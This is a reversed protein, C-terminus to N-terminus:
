KSNKGSKLLHICNMLARANHYNEQWESGKDGKRQEPSYDLGEKYWGGKDHDILYANIYEWQKRFARDYKKEEPFTKAMLLLANLGEAQVWWVKARSIIAISDRHAFYYGSEYFGGNQDDWGNELAHDVMHKATSLTKRDSEMGLVHSAELMLYATEVDHGFSVHDLNVNAKRVTDSSDRFSVPTWDRELYLTLYGKKGTITDRILLLLEQLRERLLGDPWVQYLATFAELLHISSNQDKWRAAVWDPANLGKGGKYFWAGERTMRDLYGKYLPDHSNKELWLFTQKALNLASSDGSMTFYSALSFIAFANGYASKGDEFAGGIPGGKRNRRMYFGGHTQDWMSNKLFRFGHEAYTRYRDEKFFLAAQSTTWIHRCQTVIMKNQRGQPKWDWNFDCLFGGDANDLSIPYWVNLLENRFSKEM